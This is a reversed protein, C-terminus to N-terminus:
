EEKWLRPDWPYEGRCWADWEERLAKRFAGVLEIESDDYAPPTAATWKLYGEWIYSGSEAPPDKETYEGFYPQLGYESALQDLGPGITGLVLCQHEHVVVLARDMPRVKKYGIEWPPVPPGFEKAIAAFVEQDEESRAKELDPQLKQETTRREFAAAMCHGGVSTATKLVRCSSCMPGSIQRFGTTLTGEWIDETWTHTTM